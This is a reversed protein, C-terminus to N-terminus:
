SEMTIESIHREKNLKVCLIYNTINQGLLFDFVAYEQEDEPYIGIRNLVLSNILQLKIPLNKDSKQTLETITLEDLESLHFELYADIEDEEYHTILYNTTGEIEYKLYNLFSSVKKLEKKGIESENFNLDIKVSNGEFDFSASYYEMLDTPNILGFFPLENKPKLFNFLSM